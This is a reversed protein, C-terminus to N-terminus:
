QFRSLYKKLKAFAWTIIPFWLHLAEITWYSKCAGFALLCELEVKNALKLVHGAWDASDWQHSNPFILHQQKLRKIKVRSIWIEMIFDNRRHLLFQPSFSSLSIHLSRCCIQDEDQSSKLSQLLRRGSKRVPGDLWLFFLGRWQSFLEIRRFCM